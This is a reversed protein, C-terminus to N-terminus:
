ASRPVVERDDELGAFSPSEIYRIIAEEALRSRSVRYRKALLDFRGAIEQPINVQIKTRPGTALATFRDGRAPREVPAM